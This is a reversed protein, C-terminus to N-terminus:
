RRGTTSKDCHRVIDNVFFGAGHFSTIAGDVRFAWIFDIDAQGRFCCLFSRIPEGLLCDDSASLTTKPMKRVSGLSM